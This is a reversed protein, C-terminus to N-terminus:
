VLLVKIPVDTSGQDAQETAARGVYRHEASELYDIIGQVTADDYTTPAATVKLPELLGDDDAGTNYLATWPELAGAADDVYGWAGGGSRVHLVQIWSNDAFATGIDKDARDLAIGLSVDDNGDPIYVDPDTEGTATVVFGPYLASGDVRRTSMGAINNPSRWMIAGTYNAMTGLAM